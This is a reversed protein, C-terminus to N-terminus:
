DAVAHAGRFIQWGKTIRSKVAAPDLTALYSPSEWSTDLVIGDRYDTLKLGFLTHGISYVTYGYGTFIEPLGAKGQAHDEYIVHKVRKQSLMQSAGQILKPEHGEVDIKLLEFDGTPFVTDLREVPVEYKVAMRDTINGDALFASGENSSFNDMAVLTATGAVDGLACEHVVIKAGGGNPSFRHINATLAERIKPHPEFSHVVGGKGVRAAFLSTMYGINAGADLVHDGHKLLRWACESVGIDFIGQRFIEGGITEHINIEMPAGWPLRTITKSVQPPFVKM